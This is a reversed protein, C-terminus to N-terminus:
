FIKLINKKLVGGVVLDKIRSESWWVVWKPNLVYRENLKKYRKIFINPKFSFNKERNRIDTM